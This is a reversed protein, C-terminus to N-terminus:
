FDKLIGRNRLQEAQVRTYRYAIDGKENSEVTWPTIAVVDGTNILLKRRVKGPIRCMRTFGDQCQVSMRSGGHLEIVKGFIEGPHLSRVRLIQGDPGVNSGSGGFPNPRFPRKPAAYHPKKKFM